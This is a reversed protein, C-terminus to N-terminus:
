HHGGSRNEYWQEQPIDHDEGEGYYDENRSLLRFLPAASLVVITYAGFGIVGYSIVSLVGPEWPGPHKNPYVFSLVITLILGIVSVWIFRDKVAKDTLWLFKQSLPHINDAETSTINPTEIEPADTM